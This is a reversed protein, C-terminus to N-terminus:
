RKEPFSGNMSEGKIKLQTNLDGFLRDKIELGTLLIDGAKVSTSTPEAPCITM